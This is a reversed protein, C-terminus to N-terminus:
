YRGPPHTVLQALVRLLHLRVALLHSRVALLHSGLGFLGDLGFLALHDPRDLALVDSSHTNSSLWYLSCAEAHLADVTRLPDELGHWLSRTLAIALEVREFEFRAAPRRFQAAGTWDDERRLEGPRRESRLVDGSGLEELKQALARVASQGQQRRRWAEALRRQQGLPSRSLLPLRNGPEREVLVVIIRSAEEGVQDLSQAADLWLKPPADQRRVRNSASLDDLDDEREEEVVQSSEPLPDDEHEVVVVQL